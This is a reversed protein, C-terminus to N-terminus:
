PDEDDQPHDYVADDVLTVRSPTLGLDEPTTLITYSTTLWEAFARDDRKTITTGTAIRLTYVYASDTTATRARDTIKVAGNTFTVGDVGTRMGLLEGVLDLIDLGELTRLEGADFRSVVVHIAWRDVLKTKDSGIYEPAASSEWVIVIAPVRGQLKALFLERQAASGGISEYMLIQKVAGTGTYNSGQSLAGSAVISAIRNDELAARFETEDPLNHVEGGLLSTVPLTVGAPTAVGAEAVRFPFQPAIAPSGADSRLVPLLHFNLPIELEAVDARTRITVSGESREGTLPSLVAMLHRATQAITM